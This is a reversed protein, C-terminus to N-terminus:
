GDVHRKIKLFEHDLTDAKESEQDEIIKTQKQIINDFSLCHHWEDYELFSSDM